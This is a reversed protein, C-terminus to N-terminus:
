SASRALADILSFLVWVGFALMTAASTVTIVDVAGDLVKTLTINKM